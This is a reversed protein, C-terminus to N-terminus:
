KTTLFIIAFRKLLLLKKKDNIPVRNSKYAGERFLKCRRSSWFFIEVLGNRRSSARTTKQFYTPWWGTFNIIDLGTIEFPPRVYHIFTEMIPKEVVINFQILYYRIFLFCRTKILLENQSYKLTKDLAM